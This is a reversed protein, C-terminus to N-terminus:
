KSRCTQGRKKVWLWSHCWHPWVVHAEGGACAKREECEAGEGRGEGGHRRENGVHVYLHSEGAV